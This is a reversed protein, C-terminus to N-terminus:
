RLRRAKRVIAKSDGKSFKNIVRLVPSKQLMERVARMQERDDTRPGRARAFGQERRDHGCGKRRHSKVHLIGCQDSFNARQPFLSNVRERLAIDLIDGPHIGSRMQMARGIVVSIYVM